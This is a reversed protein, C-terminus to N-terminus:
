PIPRPPAVGISELYGHILRLDQDSIVQPSYAPMNRSAYRVFAIMADVPMPDPAIKPGVGGQGVTGHCQYCGAAMFAHRGADITAAPQSWGPLVVAALGAALSHRTLKRM